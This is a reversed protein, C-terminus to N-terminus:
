EKVLVKVIEGVFTRHFDGDAYNKEVLSPDLFCSSEMDQKYLKKCIM